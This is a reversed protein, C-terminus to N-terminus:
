TGDEISEHAPELFREGGQIIIKRESQDKNEAHLCAIIEGMRFIFGLYKQQNELGEPLLWKEVLKAAM